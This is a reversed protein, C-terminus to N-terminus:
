QIDHGYTQTHTPRVIIHCCGYKYQQVQAFLIIVEDSDHKM